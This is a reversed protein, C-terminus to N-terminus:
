ATRKILLQPCSNESIEQNKSMEQIILSQDESFYDLRSALNISRSIREDMKTQIGFDNYGLGFEKALLGLSINWENLHFDNELKAEENHDFQELNRMLLQEFLREDIYNALFIIKEKATFDGSITNLIIRLTDKYNVIREWEEQSISPIKGQETM